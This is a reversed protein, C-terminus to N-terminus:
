ISGSGPTSDRVSDTNTGGMDNAYGQLPAKHYQDRTFQEHLVEITVSLIDIWERDKSNLIQDVQGHIREPLRAEM